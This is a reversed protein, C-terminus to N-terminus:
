KKIKSIQEKLIENEKKLEIMYLTLEEIKQLLIADMEAVNLGNAIMEEESPVDPLHNNISVFNEVEELTRLKYNDDFVFDPWNAILEVKVKETIIGNRVHLRYGETGFDTFEDPQVGMGVQGNDALFLRYNQLNHTSGHPKWFNLGQLTNGVNYSIGWQGYTSSSNKDFLISGQDGDVLVFGGNVHLKVHQPLINTHIGVGNHTVLFKSSISTNNGIKEGIKFLERNVIPTGFAPTTYFIRAGYLDQQLDVKTELLSVPNSTRIGVRDSTHIKGTGQIWQAFTTGSVLVLLSIILYQKKM